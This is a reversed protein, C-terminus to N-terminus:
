FNERMFIVEEAGRFTGFAARATPNDDYDTGAWNGQLYSRSAGTVGVTGGGVSTCTTGSNTSDLNVTLLVSGDNASGPAPLLLTKRGASLTGAGNVATECASLRGAFGSMAVNVNAISTCSDATNTMFGLATNAPPNTYGWYQAEMALRLPVIQSGNANRLALRGFRM